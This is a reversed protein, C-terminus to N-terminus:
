KPLAKIIVCDQNDIEKVNVAIQEDLSTPINKGVFDARIPLERHGRDVLVAVQIKSPRGVHMLADMAARVTRGTYIVDDILVVNKNDINVGVDTSHVVPDQKLTADHRDDRYLTIDLTGLPVDVGELKLIREHIRQALYIGRTKIGVLVLNDTGKNNEIIEYTIRTLARKMAVGNWIEKAM